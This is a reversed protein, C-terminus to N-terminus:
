LRQQVQLPFSAPRIRAAQAPRGAPRLLGVALKPALGKTSRLKQLGGVPGCGSPTLFAAVPGGAGLAVVAAISLTLVGMEKRTEQRIWLIKNKEAAAPRPIDSVPAGAGATGALDVVTLGIDASRCAYRAAM